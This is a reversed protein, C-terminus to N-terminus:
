CSGPSSGPARPCATLGEPREERGRNLPGASEERVYGTTCWKSRRLVAREGEPCSCRPDLLKCHEASMQRGRHEVRRAQSHGLSPREGNFCVQGAQRTLFARMITGGSGVPILGSHLNPLLRSNGSYAPKYINKWAPMQPLSLLVQM